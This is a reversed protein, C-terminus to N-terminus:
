FLAVSFPHIDALNLHCVRHVYSLKLRLLVVSIIDCLFVGSSIFQYFIFNCYLKNNNVLIYLVYSVTKEGVATASSQCSPVVFSPVRDTQLVVRDSSGSFLESHFRVM